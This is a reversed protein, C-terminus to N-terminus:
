LDCSMRLQLKNMKEKSLTPHTHKGISKVMHVGNIEKTLAKAKCKIYPHTHATGCRWSTIKTKHAVGSKNYDFKKHILKLHGRSSITFTACDEFDPFISFRTSNTLSGLYQVCFPVSISNRAFM